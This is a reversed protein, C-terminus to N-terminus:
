NEHSLSENFFLRELVKLDTFGQSKKGLNKRKYM